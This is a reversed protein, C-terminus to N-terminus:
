YVCVHFNRRPENLLHRAKILCNWNNRNRTKMVDSRSRLTYENRTAVEGFDFQTCQASDRRNRPKDRDMLFSMAEYAYWKSKYVESAGKGTGKGKKTKNKERRFASLLSTM